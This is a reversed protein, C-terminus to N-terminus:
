TLTLATSISATAAGWATTITVSGAAIPTVVGSTSVTAKTVDSSTYTARSMISASNCVPALQFSGGAVTKSLTTPVGSIVGAGGIQTHPYMVGQPLFNVSAKTSEDGATSNSPVDTIFKYMSIEDGAAFANGAPQNVRIILWGVIGPTRFAQFAQQYLATSDANNLNRFLPLTAAYNQAGRTVATGLDVLSRDDVDASKSSGLKLNKFAIAASIDMASASLESLAPFQKNTVASDLIWAVKVNGIAPNKSM